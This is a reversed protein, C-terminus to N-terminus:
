DSMKALVIGLERIIHSCDNNKRRVTFNLKIEKTDNNYVVFYLYLACTDCEEENEYLVMTAFTESKGNPDKIHSAHRIDYEDEPVHCFEDIFSTCKKFSEYWEM